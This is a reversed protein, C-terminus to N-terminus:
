LRDYAQAYMESHHIHSFVLVSVVFLNLPRKFEDFARSFDFAHDFFTNWM